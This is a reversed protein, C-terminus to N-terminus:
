FYVKFLTLFFHGVFHWFLCHNQQWPAVLVMKMGSHQSLDNVCILRPRKWWYFHWYEPNPKSRANRLSSQMLSSRHWEALILKSLGLNCATDPVLVGKIEKSQTGHTDPDKRVETRRYNWKKNQSLLEDGRELLPLGPTAKELALNWIQRLLYESVQSQLAFRM